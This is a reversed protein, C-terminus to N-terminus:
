GSIKSEGIRVLLPLSILDLVQRIIPGFENNALGINMQVFKPHVTPTFLCRNRFCSLNM